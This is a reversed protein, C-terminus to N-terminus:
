VGLFDLLGSPGSGVLKPVGVVLDEATWAKGGRNKLERDIHWGKDFEIVDDQIKLLQGSLFGSAESALYAVLEAGWTDPTGKDKQEAMTKATLAALPGAAPLSANMRTRGGPRVANCTVGMPQVDLAVCLTFGMIGAKAAGYACQGSSGFMAGSVTNIIRANVPKETKKFLARWRNTAHRTCNFTGKLHVGLVADWDDGTMNWVMRDRLIGANNVLADLRGWQDFAAQILEESQQFNSVDAYNAIAEGGREKIETVVQQAPTADSGSGDVKVGPDNVVVKAGCRALVLAHDRGIGRGAGTVIAVRGDLLSM